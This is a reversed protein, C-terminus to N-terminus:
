CKNSKNTSTNESGFYDEVAVLVPSVSFFSVRDIVDNEIDSLLSNEDEVETNQQNSPQAAEVDKRESLGPDRGDQMVEGQPSASKILLNMLRAEEVLLSNMSANLSDHSFLRQLSNRDVSNLRSLSSAIERDLADQLSQNIIIHYCEPRKFELLCTYIKNVAKKLSSNSVNGEAGYAFIVVPFNPVQMLIRAYRQVKEGESANSTINCCWQQSSRDILPEVEDRLITLIMEGSLASMLRCHFSAISRPYKETISPRRQRGKTKLRGHKVYLVAIDGLACSLKYLNEYSKQQLAEDICDIIKHLHENEKERQVTRTLGGKNTKQKEQQNLLYQTLKGKFEQLQRTFSFRNNALKSLEEKSEDSLIDLPKEEPSVRLRVADETANEHVDPYQRRLENELKTLNIKATAINKFALSEDKNLRPNNVAVYSVFEGLQRTLKGVLQIFPAVAEDALRGGQSHMHILIVEKVTDRFSKKAFGKHYTGNRTDVDDIININLKNTNATEDLFQLTKAIFEDNTSQTQTMTNYSAREVKSEAVSVQQKVEADIPLMKRYHQVESRLQKVANDLLEEGLGSDTTMVVFQHCLEDCVKHWVRVANNFGIDDASVNPHFMEGFLFDGLGVAKDINNQHKYLEQKFSDLAQKVDAVAHSCFRALSVYDKEEYVVAGNADISKPLHIKM